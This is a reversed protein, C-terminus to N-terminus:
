RAKKFFRLLEKAVQGPDGSDPGSHDLGNFIVKKSYKLIKELAEINRKLFKPSLNGGLLLVEAKLSSFRELSGATDSVIQVDSLSTPILVRLCGQNNSSVESKQIWNRVMRVLIFRPIFKPINAEVGRLFTVMAHDLRNENIERKLRMVWKMKAPKVLSYPPEYVAVKQVLDSQLAAELALIGGSSHGFIFSRGTKELVACLDQVETQVGLSAKPGNESAGRGRRDMLYVTFDAALFLALKVFHHSSQMAGHLILVAPGNGIFRFGIKTGDASVTHSQIFEQYSKM